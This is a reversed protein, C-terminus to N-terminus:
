NEPFSIIGLRLAKVVAETRDSVELKSILHEVHNKVTGVSVVFDEAIERNTKGQALLELVEIERPTLPQYLEIPGQTDPGEVPEQVEDLALRRLLQAALKPTLPSEGSLVQWIASIVEDRSADKLVYGAAGARLAQLLYDPNEHMTMVLISTRPYERKIARTAALGDMRPMRLDMLMLDPRVRGCLELAEQGDAAEGVVEVGPVDALIDRL